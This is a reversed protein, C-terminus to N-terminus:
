ARGGDVVAVELGGALLLATCFICAHTFERSGAPEDVHAGRHCPSAAYRKTSSRYSPIPKKHPFVACVWRLYNPRTEHILHAPSCALEFQGGPKEFPREWPVADGVGDLPEGVEEAVARRGLHVENGRVIVPAVAGRDDIEDLLQGHREVPWYPPRSKAQRSHGMNIDHAVKPPHESPAHWRCGRQGGSAGQRATHAAGIPRGEFRM